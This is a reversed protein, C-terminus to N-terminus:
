RAADMEEPVTIQFDKDLRGNRVILRKGKGLKIQSVDLQKAWRHGHRKAFWLFLRKVKISKCIELLRQCKRPSLNALAEFIVDVQHFTEREPLEDLLELVAREPASCTIPWSTASWPSIQPGGVLGKPLPTTVGSAVDVAVADLGRGQYGEPFLRRDRHFMFRERVGLKKLWGPPPTDGYLHVRGEGSIPLYHGFGQLTLATRGGVVGPWEMLTQLSLIALTWPLSAPGEARLRPPPRRYVGHAPSDLWGSQVYRSRLNIPYGHRELWAADVLLGEPVERQLQNLKTRPLDGM